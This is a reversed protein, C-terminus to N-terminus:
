AARTARRRNFFRGLTLSWFFRRLGKVNLVVGFVVMAVTAAALWLVVPNGAITWGGIGFPLNGILGGIATQQIRGAITAEDSYLGSSALLLHDGATQSLHLVGHFSGAADTIGSEPTVAADQGPASLISMLVPVGSVPRGAATLTVTFNDASGPALQTHAMSITLHDLTTLVGGGAALPNRGTGSRVAVPASNLTYV